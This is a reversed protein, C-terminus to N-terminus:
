APMPHGADRMEVEWNDNDLLIDCSWDLGIFSFEFSEADHDRYARDIWCYDLM